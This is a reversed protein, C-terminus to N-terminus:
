EVSFSVSTIEQELHIIIQEEKLWLVKFGM